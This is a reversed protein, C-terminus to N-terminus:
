TTRDSTFVNILSAGEGGAIQGNVFHQNLVQYTVGDIKV